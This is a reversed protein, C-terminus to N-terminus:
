QQLIICVCPVDPETCLAGVCWCGGCCSGGLRQAAHRSAWAGRTHARRCTHIGVDREREQEALNGALIDNNGGIRAADQEGAQTQKLIDYDPAYSYQARKPDFELFADTKEGGGVPCDHGLPLVVPASGGHVFMAQGSHVRVQLMAPPQLLLKTQHAFCGGALDLVISFILLLTLDRAASRPFLALSSLSLLSGRPRVRESAGLRRSARL